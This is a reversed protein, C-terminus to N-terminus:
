RWSAACGRSATAPTLDAIFRYRHIM